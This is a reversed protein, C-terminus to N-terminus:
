KATKDAAPAEEAKADAEGETAQESKLSRADLPKLDKCDTRFLHVSGIMRNYFDQIVKVEAYTLRWATEIQAFKKVLDDKSVNDQDIFTRANEVSQDVYKPDKPTNTAM